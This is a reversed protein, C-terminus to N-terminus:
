RQYAAKIPTLADSTSGDGLQGARNGGWCYLVDDLTVGCTQDVGTSITHFRLGGIVSVPAPRQARTGDGLQGMRNDGWCYALGGLTLGCTHYSGADIQSFQLEGAVLSPVYVEAYNGMGLEGQANWGWCYAKSDALGCTFDKGATIATFRLDGAVRVPPLTDSAANRNGDGLQGYQNEGACYAVGNSIVYCDHNVAVSVAILATDALVVEPIEVGDQFIRVFGQESERAGFCLLARTQDLACMRGGGAAVHLMPETGFVPTPEPTLFRDGPRPYRAYHYYPMGWCMAVHGDTLACADRLGARLEVARSPVGIRTPRHHDALDSVGLQGSEGRGWCYVEGQRGLACSFESGTEVSAFAITPGTYPEVTFETRYEQVLSDGTRDEISRTVVLTYTAGAVLSDEPVFEATLGDPSLVVSGAVPQDRLLLIVSSNTVTAITLPESFVVRVRLLAPADTVGMGPDSRVVVPPVRKKVQGLFTHEDGGGGVATLEITDGTTAPLRVPDVAGDEIVSATVSQGTTRNRVTAAAMGSLTGTPLSAFAYTIPSGSSTGDPAPAADSVVLTGKLAPQEPAAVDEAGSCATVFGFCILSLARLRNM